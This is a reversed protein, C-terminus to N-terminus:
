FFLVANVSLIDVTGQLIEIDDYPNYYIVCHEYVKKTFM